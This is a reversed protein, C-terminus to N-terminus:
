DSYRSAAKRRAAQKHAQQKRQGTLETRDRERPVTRIKQRPSYEVDDYDGNVMNVLERQNIKM